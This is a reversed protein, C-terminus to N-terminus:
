KKMRKVEDEIEKRKAKSAGPPINELATGPDHENELVEDARRDNAERISQQGDLLAARIYEQRGENTQLRNWTEMLDQFNRHEM